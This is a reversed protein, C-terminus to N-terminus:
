QNNNENMFYEIVYFVKAIEIKRKQDDTKGACIENVFGWMKQKVEKELNEIPTIKKAAKLTNYVWVMISRRCNFNVIQETYGVSYEEFCALEKRGIREMCLLWDYSAQHYKDM